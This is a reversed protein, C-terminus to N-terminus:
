GSPDFIIVTYDVSQVHQGVMIDRISVEYWQDSSPAGEVSSLPEWVLTNEGFGDVVPLLRLEVPEGEHLMRVTAATMDAADMSFSWRVYVVPFPVYGPPPWAVFPHRTVPRQESMLGLVWLANAPWHSGDGSVDGTGMTKTHPYLLMRRHPVFYNDEGRDEIYANVAAPGTGGLFLLSHGAGEAALPSFCTWDEGPHHSLMGNVSMLLAAEQARLNAENTFQIVAPVGAMARFYNIRQVVTERYSASSDGADCESRQGSWDLTVGESTLYFHRYFWSSVSRYLTDVAPGDLYSGPPVPTPGIETGESLGQTSWFGDFAHSLDGTPSARSSEGAGNVGTAERASRPAGPVCALAALLLLSIGAALSAERLCRVRRSGIEM